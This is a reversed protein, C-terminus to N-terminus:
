QCTFNGPNPTPLQSNPALNSGDAVQQPTGVRDNWVRAAYWSAADSHSSRVSSTSAQGENSFHDRPTWSTRAAPETPAFMASPVPRQVSASLRCRNRMARPENYSTSCQVSLAAFLPSSSREYLARISSTRPASEPRILRGAGCGWSGVGLEWGRYIRMGARGGAEEL